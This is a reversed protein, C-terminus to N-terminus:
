KGYALVEGDVFCVPARLLWPAGIRQAHTSLRRLRDDTSRDPETSGLGGGLWGGSDHSYSPPVGEGDQEEEDEDRQQRRPRSGEIEELCTHM